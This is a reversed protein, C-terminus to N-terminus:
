WDGEAKIEELQKRVKELEELERELKRLEEGLEEIHAWRKQSAELKAIASASISSILLFGDEEVHDYQLLVGTERAKWTLEYFGEEVEEGFRQRCITEVKDYNKEGKFWLAVRMFQGEDFDYFILYFEANGISMKDNPLTYSKSGDIGAFFEMDESPPDGWKLGRFGDPENQFAFAGLSLALALWVIIGVVIIRKMSEEKTKDGARGVSDTTWVTIKLLNGGGYM